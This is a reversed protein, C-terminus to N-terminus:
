AHSQEPYSGLIKLWLTKKRIQNLAKEFSPQQYHGAVDVFFLYEWAKHPAPRSEIKQLNLKAAAFISLIASLAGVEHAVAFILSTKCRAVRPAPKDSLVLFRTTNNLADSINKAVIRLKYLKAAWPSVIAAAHPDNQARKAGESTSSVEIQEVNPYHALLWQRCQGLPQPHSYIRQITKSQSTVCLVNNIKLFSEGIIFLNTSVLCDNTANVGGEISNEVPVVCAEAEERAVMAFVEPISRNSVYHANHGFREFAAQHSYSGEPGMYAISIPNQAARSASLIESYISRFASHSLRSKKELHQLLVDEHKTSELAKEGKFSGIEKSIKVRENLLEVLKADVKSVRAQLKQLKM